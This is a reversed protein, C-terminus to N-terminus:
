DGRRAGAAARRRGRGAPRSAARSRLLADARATAGAAASMVAVSGAALRGEGRDAAARDADRAIRVLQGGARRRPVAQRRVAVGMARGGTLIPGDARRSGAAPALRQPQLSRAAGAVHVAPQRRLLREAFRRRAELLLQHQLRGAQSGGRGHAARQGAELRSAARGARPRLVARRGVACRDLRRGGALVYPRYPRPRGVRRATIRRPPRPADDVASLLARGDWQQPPLRRLWAVVDELTGGPAYQMYMLRLNDRDLLRQDYVRVIHPHDLQALTQPEDDRTATIKLAVIRQLSLQRALFVTGFAGKGLQVLLEFDDITEGAQFGGARVAGTVCTTAGLTDGSLLRQLEDAQEPFRRCYEDASVTDGQGRRIRFEEYLVDGPARGDDLLEPFDALYQEWRRFDLGGAARQEMDIKVLEALVVRRLWAPQDPAFEALDPEAQEEWAALFRGVRRALTDWQRTPEDMPM